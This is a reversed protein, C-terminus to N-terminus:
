APSGTKRALAPMALAYAVFGIFTLLTWAPLSIMLFEANIKACEGEGKLVTEVVEKWPLIQMMYDLTPGCAPVQDPPLSQLWVHRAAIGIGALSALAALYSYVRRGALGKPGHIAGALFAVGAAMMAVRQFICMACPMLHRFHELYLAFGMAACTGLFGLAALQRFSFFNM